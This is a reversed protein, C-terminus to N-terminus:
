AHSQNPESFMSISSSSYHKEKKDFSDAAMPKAEQVGELSNRPIM